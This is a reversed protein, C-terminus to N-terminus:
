RSQSPKPPAESRRGKATFYALEKADFSPPTAYRDIASTKFVLTERSWLNSDQWRRMPEVLESCALNNLCLSEPHSLKCQRLQAGISFHHSGSGTFGTVEAMARCAWEFIQRLRKILLPMASFRADTPKGGNKIVFDILEPNNLLLAGFFREAAHRNKPHSYRPVNMATSFGKDAINRQNLVSIAENIVLQYRNIKVAKADKLPLFHLLVFFEFNPKNIILGEYGYQKAEQRLSDLNVGRRDMKDFDCILWKEIQPADDISVLSDPDACYAAILQEARQVIKRHGHNGKLPIPIVEVDFTHQRPAQSAIAKQLAFIYSPESVEGETCILLHLM